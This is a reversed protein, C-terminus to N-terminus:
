KIKFSDVPFDNKVEDYLYILLSYDDFVGKSFDLIKKKTLPGKTLNTKYRPGSTYYQAAEYYPEKSKKRIMLRVAESVYACGLTTNLVDNRLTIGKRFRIGLREAQQRGTGDLIQMPGLAGSDSFIGCGRWGSERYKIAPFIQWNVGFKEGMEVFIPAYFKIEISTITDNYRRKLSEEALFVKYRHEKMVKHERLIKVYKRHQVNSTAIFAIWNSTALLILVIIAYSLM